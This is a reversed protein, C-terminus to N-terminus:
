RTDYAHHNKQRGRNIKRLGFRERGFDILPKPLQYKVVVHPLKLRETIKWEGQITTDRM